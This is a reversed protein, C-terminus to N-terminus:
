TFAPSDTTSVLCSSRSGHKAPVRVQPMRQVLYQLADNYLVLQQLSLPIDDGRAYPEVDGAYQHLTGMARICGFTFQGQLKCHGQSVM